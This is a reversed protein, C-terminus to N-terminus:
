FIILLLIWSHNSKSILQLPQHFNFTINQFRFMPDMACKLPHNKPSFNTFYLSLSSWGSIELLVACIDAFYKKMILLDQKKSFYLYIRITDHIEYLYTSLLNKLTYFISIKLLRDLLLFNSKMEWLHSPQHMLEYLEQNGHCCQKSIM